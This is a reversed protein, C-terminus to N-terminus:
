FFIRMYADIQGTPKPLESAPECVFEYGARVIRGDEVCRFGRITVAYFGPDLAAREGPEEPPWDMLRDLDYFAATSKVVLPFVGNTVVVFDDVQSEEHSLRCIVEYTGDDISLLPAIAGQIIVKDGLNSNFFERLLDRTEGPAPVWDLTNHLAGADLLVIGNAEVDLECVIM